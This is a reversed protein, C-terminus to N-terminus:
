APKHAGKWGESKFSILSRTRTKPGGYIKSNRWPKKHIAIKVTKILTPHRNTHMARSDSSDDDDDQWTPRHYTQSEVSPCKIIILEKGKLTESQTM